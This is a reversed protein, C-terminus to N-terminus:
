YQTVKCNYIGAQATLAFHSFLFLRQEWAFPFSGLSNDKVRKSIGCFILTDAADLKKQKVIYLNRLNSLISDM